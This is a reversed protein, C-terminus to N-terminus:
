PAHPTDERSTRTALRRDRAAAADKARRALITPDTTERRYVRRDTGWMRSPKEGEHWLALFERRARGLLSRFTQPEIGLSEAALLYDGHAALATFAERQRPTLAPWIQALTVREVVRSEPSTAHPNWWFKAFAPMSGAGAYADRKYFGYTHLEDRVLANIAAQGARVLDHRPPWHEATMLHECIGFWAAEMLDTYDMALWARATNVALKTLRHLDTLTYGHRLEQEGAPAVTRRAPM